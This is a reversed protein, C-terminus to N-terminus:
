VLIFCLLRIRCLCLIVSWLSILKGHLNSLSLALVWLHFEVGLHCDNFIFIEVISFEYQGQDNTLLLFSVSLNFADALFCGFISFCRTCYFLIYWFSCSSAQSLNGFSRLCDLLSILVWTVFICILKLYNVDWCLTMSKLTRIFNFFKCVSRKSLIALIPPAFSRLVTFLEGLSFFWMWLHEQM